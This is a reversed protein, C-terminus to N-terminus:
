QADKKRAMETDLWAIADEVNDFSRTRYLRDYRAAAKSAWYWWTLGALLSAAAKLWVHDFLSDIWAYGMFVSMAMCGAWLPGHWWEFSPKNIKM